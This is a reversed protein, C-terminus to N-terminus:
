AELLKILTYTGTIDACYKSPPPLHFGDYSPSSETASLPLIFEFRQDDSLIYDKICSENRGFGDYDEFILAYSGQDTNFRHISVDDDDLAETTEWHIEIEEIGFQPLVAYAYFAYLERKALAESTNNIYEM